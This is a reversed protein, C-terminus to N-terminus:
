SFSTGPRTSEDASNALARGLVRGLAPGLTAIMRGTALDDVSCHLEDVSIGALRLRTAYQGPQRPQRPEGEVSVVTAPAIGAVVPRSIPGPNILVQRTLMPWGQEAVDLAVTAAVTAGEDEGAVLLRRPDSGLEAAHDAAWELVITGDASGGDVALVVLGAASSLRQCSAEAGTGAMCFVLLPAPDSTPQSPWYVRVPLPRTNGRLRLDAIRNRHM